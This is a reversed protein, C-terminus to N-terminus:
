LGNWTAPPPPPQPRQPELQPPIRFNNLHSPPLEPARKCDTYQNYPFSCHTPKCNRHTWSPHPPRFIFTSVDEGPQRVAVGDCIRDPFPLKACECPNNKCKKKGKGKGKGKCPKESQFLQFPVHTYIYRFSRKVTVAEANKCEALSKPIARQIPKQIILEHSKKTEFDCFLSEYIKGCVNKGDHRVSCQRPYRPLVEDFDIEPLHEEGIRRRKAPPEYDLYTRLDSLPRKNRKEFEVYGRWFYGTM